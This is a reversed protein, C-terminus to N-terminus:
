GEEDIYGEEDDAYPATDRAKRRLFLILVVSLGILLVGLALLLGAGGGSTGKAAIRKAGQRFGEGFAEAYTENGSDKYAKEICALLEDVDQSSLAAGAETWASLYYVGEDWEDYVVLLHDGEDFLAGYQARVFDDLAEAEVGDLLSLYPRVGTKKEFAKMGRILARDNQIRGLDDEYWGGDWLATGAPAAEPEGPTRLLVLALATVAGLALLVLGALCGLRVGQKKKRRYRKKDM